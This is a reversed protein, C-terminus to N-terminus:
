EVMKKPRVPPTLGPSSLWKEMESATGLQRAKKLLADREPGRPLEAAADRFEQAQRSWKAELSKQDDIKM